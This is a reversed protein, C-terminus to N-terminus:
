RPREATARYLAAYDPATDAVSRLDADLAARTARRLEDRCVDLNRLLDLAEPPRTPDITWGAGTARIREGLAGYPAAIVPRGAILAETMVHGFTESVLGPLLVVQIGAADLLVPLVLNDYVGHLRIRKSAPEMLEGFHHIEISTDALEDALWSVLELGKKARGLGIFAVRLPEGFILSEDMTTRRHDLDLLAGHPVIRTRAPDIDYARRLLDAAAQSAFVWTDVTDLRADVTARFEELYPLEVDRTEPLCEECFSLDEPIGCFQDRYLLAHSPCALFPDRVSCVVRGSFDSLVALPALSHGILNQIHVADFSYLDLVTRLAMAANEDHVRTVRRPGGPLLFEHHIPRGDPGRWATRLVFGSQVPHFVSFDFEPLLSRILADLHKESGGLADPASHLIHLVHPRSEDRGALELELAALSPAVPDSTREHRNTAAFYPYRDRILFSGRQLGETREEGFSVGGHHFVFTSDEVLHRFGLRTARLCFDVEEGYGRGFTGEDLLGCADIAARTVYMCFGVGTIVEPRHRLSHERIFRACEDIRPREGDLAFHEIVSRPLTCISGFNSLPTVTAVDPEATAADRLRDVWGATVVTDANLIVVDGTTRQLGRNVTGVFGLNVDNRLVALPVEHREQELADVYTNLGAHPSADNIVLVELDFAPRHDLVSDICARVEDVGRYVPVIVTV